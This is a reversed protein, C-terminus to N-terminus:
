IRAVADRDAALVAARHEVNLEVLEYVDAAERLAGAIETAGALSETLRTSLVSAASVAEWARDREVFLMNQLAGLRRLVAELDDRADYFRWATRRLTETDVAVAGGGLIELGDSM